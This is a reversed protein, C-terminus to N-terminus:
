TQKAQYLLDNIINEAKEESSIETINVIKIRASKYWKEFGDITIEDENKYKIKVNIWEQYKINDINYNEWNDTFQLIDEIYQFDDKLFKIAESIPTYIGCLCLMPTKKNISTDLKNVFDTYRIDTNEDYNISIIFTFGIIKDNFEGYCNLYYWNNDGNIINTFDRYGEVTPTISKEWKKWTSFSSTSDLKQSMINFSLRIDENIIRFANIIDTLQKKESEIM